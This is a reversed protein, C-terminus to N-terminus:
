GDRGGGTRSPTSTAASSGPSHDREALPDAGFLQEQDIPVPHIGCRGSFRSLKVTYTRQEGDEGVLLYLPASVIASGDPLYLALQMPSILDGESPGDFSQGDVLDPDRFAGERSASGGGSSEFVGLTEDPREDSFRYGEPLSYVPFTEYREIEGFRDSQELIGESELDPDLLRGASTPGAGAAQGELEIAEAYISVIGRADARAVMRVPLGRQQAEARCLAAAGEIRSMASELVSGAMREMVSPMVLGAVVVLLTLVVLLELITFGRREMAHERAAEPSLRNAAGRGLFPM